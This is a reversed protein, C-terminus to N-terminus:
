IKEKTCMIDFNCHCYDRSCIIPKEPLHVYDEIYGLSGGELCWGRWIRGDTDVVIQEVGAYCRWGKWRNVGESIFRHSSSTMEIEEGVLKMSGRFIPRDTDWKVKSGYLEFQKDIIESQEQTYEYLEDKFDVLLPQLAISVNPVVKVIEEVVEICLDFYAPHMMLNVHTRMHSSILQALEIYHHRNSFEPQFSLCAHDLQTKIDDWWGLNRSGNSIVGVYVNDHSKLFQVLDYFDLWYTVEGGTFEFYVNKDENHQIVSSCFKTVEDYDPRGASGSHLYPPCYSCKYNCSNLLCWNVVVTDKAFQHEHELKHYEIM